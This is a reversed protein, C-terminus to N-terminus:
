KPRHKRSIVLYNRLLGLDLTQPDLFRGKGAQEFVIGLQATLVPLLDDSGVELDLGGGVAWAIRRIM